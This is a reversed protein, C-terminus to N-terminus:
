DYFGELSKTFEEDYSFYHATIDDIYSSADQLERELGQIQERYSIEKVWNAITAQSCGFIKAMDVQKAGYKRVLAYAAVMTKERSQGGSNIYGM